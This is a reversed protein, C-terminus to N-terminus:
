LCSRTTNSGSYLDNERDKCVEEITDVMNFNEPEVKTVDYGIVDHKEAMVEAADKGLKGVGIFGIKM